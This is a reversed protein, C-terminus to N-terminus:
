VRLPTMHGPPSPPPVTHLYINVKSDTINTEYNHVFLCELVIKKSIESPKNSIQIAVPSISCTLNTIECCGHDTNLTYTERVDNCCNMDCDNSAYLQVNANLLAFVTFISITAQKLM